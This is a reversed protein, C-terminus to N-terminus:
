FPRVFLATARQKVAAVLDNLPWLTVLLKDAPEMLPIMLAAPFCTASEM